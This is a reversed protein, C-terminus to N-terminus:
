KVQLEGIIVQPFVKQDNSWAVIFTFHETLDKKFYPIYSKNEHLYRLLSGLRSDFM